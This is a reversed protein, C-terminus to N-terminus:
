AQRSEWVMDYSCQCAKYGAANDNSNAGVEWEVVVSSGFGAQPDFDIAFM